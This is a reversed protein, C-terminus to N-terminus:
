TTRFGTTTFSPGAQPHGTNQQQTRVLVHSGIVSPDLMGRRNCGPGFGTMERFTIPATARLRARGHRLWLTGGYGIDAADSREGNPNQKSKAYPRTSTSASTTRRRSTGPQPRDPQDRAGARDSECQSGDAHWAQIFDVM